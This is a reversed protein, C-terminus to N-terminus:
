GNTRPLFLVLLEDLRDIIADPKYTEYDSEPWDAARSRLLVARMGSEKAGGVDWRPSDGVYVVNRPELTGGNTLGDLAKRFIAPHPKRLGVESSFTFGEFFPALGLRDLEARCIASPAAVNSLLALRYGRRRLEQLVPLPKALHEAGGQWHQWLLEVMRPLDWQRRRSFGMQEGWSQLVRPVDIERHEPDADAARHAQQMVTGLSASISIRTEEDDVGLLGAIGAIGRLIADRERDNRCLTGGWDFLICHIDKLWAFSGM